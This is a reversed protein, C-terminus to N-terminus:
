NAWEPGDISVGVRFEFEQFLDSWKANILTGNTQIRHVIKGEERLTEFPALLNRFHRLGTALPEGAHWIISVPDSSDQDAIAQAVNEAVWPLMKLNQHRSPLYCYECDLNCVTVPQMVVSNFDNPTM